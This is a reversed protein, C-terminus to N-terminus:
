PNHYVPVVRIRAGLYRSDASGTPDELFPAFGATTRVTLPYVYNTPYISPRYPVGRAPRLDFSVVEEAALDVTHRNFGSSVTVRNPALGNTIEIQLTRVRLPVRTGGAGEATAARLIVDARAAGRVWFSDDEPEPPWANHDVFYARLPPQGGISLRARGADASVPLDNLMTLEIPLLRLPGSRAPEGPNFSSQFPTILLKATFLAGIGLAVLPVRPGRVAPMLFLFLPYFSIFYRNGIPGGGGSYTYPMYILFAVAGGVLGALTLWQWGFRERRTAGGLLFYGLAVVGPFFYPVFGSYRGISFYMVNWGFVTLTHRHFLIDTPVQDTTLLVGRNDFTEWPNAFPFGTGSYFSRRGFEGGQYNAEGTIAFNAGFLLVVFAGFIAGTVIARRLERRWLLFALIPFILLIHTPKSFTAIGLLAAAVYDSAPRRLFAELRGTLAETPAALKYAWCFYAFFVVTFNFLEPMLWVYYLPVVSAFIFILSFGAAWGPHSGRARLFVYGAGVCAALMLAHLVLFGNTGFLWVFPAAVLPYIFAKGYYLRSRAPDPSKEFVVFPWSAQVSVGEIKAGRKLFIGEPGPFEEWVRVLDRRQFTMDGDRALSHALSYYTAEDGKFGGAARAFDVSGAVGLYVLLVVACALVGPTPAPRWGRIV